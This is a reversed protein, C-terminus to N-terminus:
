QVINHNTRDSLDHVVNEPNMNKSSLFMFQQVESMNNNNLCKELVEMGRIVPTKLRNSLKQIAM